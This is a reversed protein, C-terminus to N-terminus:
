TKTVDSGSASGSRWGLWGSGVAGALAMAVYGVLMSGMGAGLNGSAQGALVTRFFNGFLLSAGIYVPLCVFVLPRYLTKWNQRVFEFGTGILASFDRQQRLEIHNANANYM